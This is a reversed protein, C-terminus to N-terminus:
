LTNLVKVEDADDPLEYIQANLGKLKHKSKVGYPKTAKDFEIESLGVRALV